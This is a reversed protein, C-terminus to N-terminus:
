RKGEWNHSFKTREFDGSRGLQKLFQIRSRAIPLAPRHNRGLIAGIVFASLILLSTM